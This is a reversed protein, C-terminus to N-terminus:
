LILINSFYVISILSIEIPLLFWMPFIGMFFTLILFPFLTFIERYNLDSLVRFQSYNIPGFCVKNLLWISYSAGLVIGSASFVMLFSNREGLGILILIEGIYNATLPVAMNALIFITFFFVFVPM